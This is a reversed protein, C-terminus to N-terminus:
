WSQHAMDRIHISKKKYLFRGSFEISFMIFNSWLSQFINPNKQEASEYANSVVFLTEVHFFELFQHLYVFESVLFFGIFTNMVNLIAQSFGVLQLRIGVYEIFPSFIDSM